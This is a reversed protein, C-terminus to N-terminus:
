KSDMVVLGDWDAPPPVSRYAEAREIQLASPGDAGRAAIVQRFLAIAGDWDRAQLRSVGAEYIAIWEPAQTAESAIHGVLEYVGLGGTRGYVAVTDLRRAFVRDKVQEYTEQGLMIETGYAKNLSELRSAVNVPDGIASYNIRDHSGVNGVLVTGTNIGIRARMEGAVGGARRLEVLRAQCALAARCAHLAHDGDPVPAGWFAMIADGIYKDITGRQDQIEASMASLYDGLFAILGDGLREAIRTFGALDMFLITLEKMEGGLRAEIGQAFLSRVLETPIYKKFSSLSAAMRATAGSVDRVETFISPVVGITEFRFDELQRLNATVRALPRGVLARAAWTGSLLMVVVFAALGFVLLRTNREIPGLVEASPLVVAVVLGMQPLPALTVFYSAGTVPDHTTFQRTGGLAMLSLRNAKLTQAVVHVAPIANEDLRPLSVPAGPDADGALATDPAAVLQGYINALFVTGSRGVTVGDLFRSLTGLAISVGLVGFSEGNREVTQANTVGFLGSAPLRDINSWVPTDQTFANKYWFQQTVLYTSPDITSQTPARLGTDNFRYTRADQVAAADTPQTYEARITGDPLRRLRLSRDDDWGFEIASFSPQSQLVALFLAEARGRDEIDTAGGGINEGIARRAAVADELLRDIKSGVSEIALANIRRDLEDVNARSTVQWPVHVLAATAVVLAVIGISLGTRISIQM